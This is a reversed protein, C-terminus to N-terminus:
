RDREVNMQIKEMEVPSYAFIHYMPYLERFVDFSTVHVRTVDARRSGYFSVYVSSLM